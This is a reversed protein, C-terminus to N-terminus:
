LQPSAVVFAVLNCGSVQQMSYPM